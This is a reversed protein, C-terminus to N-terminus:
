AVVAVFCIDFNISAEFFSGDSRPFVVPLHRPFIYNVKITPLVFGSDQGMAEKRHSNLYDSIAQAQDNATKPNSSRLILQFGGKYFDALENDTKMGTNQSTLMAGVDSEKLTYVFVSNGVGAIAGERIYQALDELWM